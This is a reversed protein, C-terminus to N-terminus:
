LYKEKLQKMVVSHEIVRGNKFDDDSIALDRKLEQLYAEKPFLAKTLINVEEISFANERLKRYYTPPKLGLLKIFHSAKYDTENILQPIQQIYNNYQEVINIM